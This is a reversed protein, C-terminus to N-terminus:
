ERKRDEYKEGIQQMIFGIWWLFPAILLFLFLFRKKEKKNRVDQIMPSGEMKRRDECGM